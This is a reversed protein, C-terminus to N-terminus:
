DAGALKSLAIALAADRGAAAHQYRMAAGPSSHGLRAMLDATTAGAQAALTAGTHRLDHFTLDPRSVADCATRFAKQFVSHTVHVGPDSTSPFLLGNRGVDKARAAVLDGIHPPITVDRVGAITKPQKVLRTGDALRVVARRVRLVGGVVDGGRLEAVEGFRLGCWAGILIMLGYQDGVAAALAAVEGPTATKITRARKVTSGGRVTCPNVTILRDTVATSLITRLLGYAHARRTPATPCLTSHWARVADPTIAGLPTTDWRPLLHGDLLKRYEGRTRAALDRGNLWRTAYEGFREKTPAHFTGAVIRSHMTALYARADVKATFTL